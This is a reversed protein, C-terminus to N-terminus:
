LWGWRAQAQRILEGCLWGEGFDSTGLGCRRLIARWDGLLRVDVIDRNADCVMEASVCFCASHTANWVEGDFARNELVKAASSM